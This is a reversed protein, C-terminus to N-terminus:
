TVELGEVGGIGTRAAVVAAVDLGVRGGGAAGFGCECKLVLGAGDRGM